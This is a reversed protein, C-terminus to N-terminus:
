VSVFERPLRPGACYAGKSKLAREKDASLAELAALFVLDIPQNLVIKRFYSLSKKDDLLQSLRFAIRWRPDWVEKSSKQLPSSSLPQSRKSGVNSASKGGEDDKPLAPQNQNTSVNFNM